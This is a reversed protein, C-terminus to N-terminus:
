GRRYRITRGARAADDGDQGTARGALVSLPTARPGTAVGEGALQIRVKVMGKADVGGSTKGGGASAVKRGQVLFPASYSMHCNGALPTFTVQWTGDFRGPAAHSAGTSLAVGWLALLGAAAGHAFQKGSIMMRSGKVARLRGPLRSRAIVNGIQRPEAM